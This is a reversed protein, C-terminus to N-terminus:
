STLLGFSFKSSRGLLPEKIEMFFLWGFLVTCFFVGRMLWGLNHEGDLHNYIMAKSEHDFVLKSYDTTIKTHDMSERKPAKNKLNSFYKQQFSVM